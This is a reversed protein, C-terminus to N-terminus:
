LNMLKKDRSLFVRVSHPISKGHGGLYNGLLRMFNECPMRLLTIVSKGADYNENLTLKTDRKTIAIFSRFANFLSMKRYNFLGQLAYSEDFSRQLREFLGYNHSHAVIAQHAYAKQYGAEIILKAWAQDEAFDVEPYPIKEWVARRILANNDSFFYLFQRYGEDQRYREPNDLRVIPQSQFSSFHQILENKTFISANSHAIHRGFVGAINADQEAANVMEALWSHNVPLADQTIMAIFEGSSNEIAFNRTKGHGFDAAPIQILRVSSHKRILDLTGDSSGSDVVLVEFPWNTEQVLVKQLVSEFISGANKTPIVVSVKYNPHNMKKYQSVDL